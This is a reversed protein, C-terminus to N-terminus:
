NSTRRRRLLQYALLGTRMDPMICPYRPLLAASGSPRFRGFSLNIVSKCVGVSTAPSTILFLCVYVTILFSRPIM